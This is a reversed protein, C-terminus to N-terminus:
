IAISCIKNLVTSDQPLNRIEEETEFITYRKEPIISNGFTVAPTIRLWIDPLVIGVTEKVSM